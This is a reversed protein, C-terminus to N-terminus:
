AASSKTDKALRIGSFQWRDKAYFFNRYTPRIHSRPSACSGGRLVLQNVMFKGNYEGLAGTPPQYGPYPCYASQTWEWCDGFAQAMGDCAAGVGPHLRGDEASRGWNGCQSAAVEWEQESALRAGAWRAFADAEYFSVHCVPENADLDREGSLTFESFAGSLGRWYLPKDWGAACVQAYGMDLWLEPRQYGNDAVFEAFEGNTVLRSAVSFAPLFCRYRPSENDFAFGDGEHGAAYLGEEFPRWALPAAAHRSGSQSSYVPALVNRSFLHKIDTTILEQHQQEHHCGLEVLQEIKVRDDDSAGNLLEVIREDISRRYANVEDLTPRTLLGREARLQREGVAQYYSNFLYCFKPHFERYGTEFPALVFTEFFWTTHALHWKAPSCDAMSQPELDAPELPEVLKLTDRRVRAFM